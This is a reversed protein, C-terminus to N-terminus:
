VRVGWKAGSELRASWVLVGRKARLAQIARLAKSVRLAQSGRLAKSVRLAQSARLALGVTWVVFEM